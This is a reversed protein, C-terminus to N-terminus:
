GLHQGNKKNSSNSNDAKKYKKSDEGLSLNLLYKENEKNRYEHIIKEKTLENLQRKSEATKYKQRQETVKKKDKTILPSAPFTSDLFKFFTVATKM